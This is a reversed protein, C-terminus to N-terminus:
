QRAASREIAKEWEKMQEDEDEDDEVQEEEEDEEVGRELRGGMLGIVVEIDGEMMIGADIGVAREYDELAEVRAICLDTLLERARTFTRMEDCDNLDVDLATLSSPDALSHPLPLPWGESLGAPLIASDFLSEPPMAWNSTIVSTLYEPDLDAM